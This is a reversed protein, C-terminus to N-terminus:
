QTEVQVEESPSSENDILDVATVHYLYVHRAAVSGDRFIPTRVLEPNLKQAPGDQEHRYVHYGALDPEANATWVLEV